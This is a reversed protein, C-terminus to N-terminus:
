SLDQVKPTRFATMTGLVPSTWLSSKVLGRPLSKVPPRTGLTSGQTSKAHMGNFGARPTLYAVIFYTWSLLLLNEIKGRIDLSPLYHYIPDGSANPELLHSPLLSLPPLVEASDPHPHAPRGQDQTDPALPLSPQYCVKQGQTQATQRGSFGRWACRREYYPTALIDIFIVGM